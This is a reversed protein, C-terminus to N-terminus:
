DADDEDDMVLERLGVDKSWEIGSNAITASLISKITRWDRRSRQVEAELKQLRTRLKPDQVDQDDQAKMEETLALLIQALRQNDQNTAINERQSEALSASITTMRSDLTSQILSLVDRRHLMPLLRRELSTSNGGSHVAKLIPDMVLTNLVVQNRNLYAARADLMKREASTMHQRLADDSLGALDDPVDHGAPLARNPGSHHFHGEPSSV